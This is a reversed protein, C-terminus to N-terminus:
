SSAPVDLFKNSDADRPKDPSGCCGAAQQLRFVLYIRPETGLATGRSSTARGLPTSSSSATPECSSSDPIHQTPGTPEQSTPTLITDTHPMPSSVAEINSFCFLPLSVVGAFAFRAGPERPLQLGRRQEGFPSVLACFGWVLSFCSCTEM